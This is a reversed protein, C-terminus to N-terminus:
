TLPEHVKFDMLPNFSIVFLVFRFPLGFALFFFFCQHPQKQFTIHLGSCQIRQTFLASCVVRQALQRPNGFLILPHSLTIIIFLYALNCFYVFCHIENILYLFHPYLAPNFYALTFCRSPSFSFCCLSERKLFSPDVTERIDHM